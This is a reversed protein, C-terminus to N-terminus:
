SPFPNIRCDVSAHINFIIDFIDTDNHSLEYGVQGQAHRNIHCFYSLHLRSM